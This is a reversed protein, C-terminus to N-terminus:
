VESALAWPVRSAMYEQAVRAPTQIADLASATDNSSRWDFEATRKSIDFTDANGWPGARSAKTVYLACLHAQTVLVCWLVPRTRPHFDELIEYVPAFASKYPKGAVEAEFESFTKVRTVGSDSDVLLAEAAADLLQGGVGQRMYREPSRAILEVDEVNPDYGFEPDMLSALDHHESLM